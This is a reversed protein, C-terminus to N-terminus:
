NIGLATVKKVVSSIKSSLIFVKNYGTLVFKLSKLSIFSGFIFFVATLGNKTRISPNSGGCRFAGSGLDPTDALEVM